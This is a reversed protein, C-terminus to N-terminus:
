TSAPGNTGPSTASPGPPPGVEIRTILRADFLNFPADPDTDYVFMSRGQPGLIAFESNTVQVTRGEPLYVTFPIFPRARLLKRIEEHDV